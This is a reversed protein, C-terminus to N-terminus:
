QWAELAAILEDCASVMASTTTQLNDLLKKDGEFPDGLEVLNFENAAATWAAITREYKERAEEIQNV